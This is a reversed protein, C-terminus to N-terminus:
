EWENRLRKQMALPDEELKLVGCFKRAEIGKGKKKANFKEWLESILLQTSGPKLITIM